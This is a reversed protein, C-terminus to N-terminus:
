ELISDWGAVIRVFPTNVVFFIKDQMMFLIENLDHSHFIADSPTALQSTAV